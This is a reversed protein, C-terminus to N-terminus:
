SNGSSAGAWSVSGVLILGLFGGAIAGKVYAELSHAGQTTTLENFLLLSGGIASGVSAVLLAAIFRRVFRPGHRRV